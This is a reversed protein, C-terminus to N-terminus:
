APGQATQGNRSALRFDRRTQRWHGDHHYSPSSKPKIDIGKRANENGHGVVALRPQMGRIMTIPQCALCVFWPLAAM